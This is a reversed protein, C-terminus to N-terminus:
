IQSSKAEDIAVKLEDFFKEEADRKANRASAAAREMLQDLQEDTPDSAANFRYSHYEASTM